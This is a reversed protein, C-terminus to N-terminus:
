NMANWRVALMYPAVSNVLTTRTKPWICMIGNADKYGHYRYSAEQYMKLECRTEHKLWIATCQLMEDETRDKEM